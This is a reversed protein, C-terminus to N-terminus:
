TRDQKKQVGAACPHARIVSSDIMIHEMDPDGAFHEFMRQWVGNNEWRAFRKYVTNWIGYREPLLRWQAGSRAVWMVAELFIRTSAENCAYVNSDALLFTHIASWQRDTFSIGSM